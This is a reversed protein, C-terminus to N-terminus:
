RRESTAVTRLHEALLTRAERIDIRIQAQLEEISAFRQEDRVRDIFEVSIPMGYLSAGGYDVMHVEVRLPGEGFTPSFGINIVCPSSGFPGSAVGAYVGVAPVLEQTTRVNATAFGIRSGRGVGRGVLGMLVYPRGLMRTVGRMAGAWVLERVRTSSIIEGDLTVSDVAHVSMGLPQGWQELLTVTGSRGQGFSFDHGVFVHRAGVRGALVETAFAQAAIGAFTRDFPEIVVASVGLGAMRELRLDLTEILKPALMLNLVTAPHPDFTYAVSALDEDEATKVVRRLLTQHGLHVGDFIGIGVASPRKTLEYAVSSRFVQM